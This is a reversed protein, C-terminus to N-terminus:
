ANAKWTKPVTWCHSLTPNAEELTIGRELLWSPHGKLRANLFYPAGKFCLGPTDVSVTALVQLVGYLLMWRGQRVERPHADSVLDTKEFRLFAEVLSNTTIEPGILLSNSAEICSQLNRKEMTKAKTSFINQKLPKGGSLDTGSAPLLPYTYPLHPYQHKRDFAQLINILYLEEDPGAPDVGWRTEIEAAKDWRRNRDVLYDYLNGFDDQLRRVLDRTLWHDNSGSTARPPWGKYAKEYHQRLFQRMRDFSRCLLTSSAQNPLMDDYSFASLRYECDEIRAQLELLSRELSIKSAYSLDRYEPVDQLDRYMGVCHSFAERWGEPWGIRHNEIWALLGAAAAPDNSVNHLNNKILYRILLQASDIENPMYLLLREHLDTLAQYYTLGILPKDLLCAFLNRTTSHHRLIEVRSADDPAPFHIEHRIPSEHQHDGAESVTSLMRRGKTTLGLNRMGGRIASVHERSPSVKVTRQFGEQLKSIIIESKTAELVSFNIRFSAQPRQYGFYM